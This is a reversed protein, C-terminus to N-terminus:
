LIIRDFGLQDNRQSSPQLKAFHIQQLVHHPGRCWANLTRKRLRSSRIGGHFGASVMACRNEKTMQIKMESKPLIEFLCSVWGDSLRVARSGKSSPNRDTPMPESRRDRLRKQTPPPVMTPTLRKSDAQM